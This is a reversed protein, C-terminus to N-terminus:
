FRLIKGEGEADDCLLMNLTNVFVVEALSTDRALDLAPGQLIEGDGDTDDVNSEDLFVVFSVSKSIDSALGSVVNSTNVFVVEALSKDRALDLTPGQLIEGDGDTDDVNSEDLFVVFSVSKSIDSALGSVVNSTWIEGYEDNREFSVLLAGLLSTVLTL